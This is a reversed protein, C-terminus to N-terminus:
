PIIDRYSPELGADAIISPSAGDNNTFTNSAGTLHQQVVVDVVNVAVNDRVDIFNSGEDLYIAALPFSGLWPLRTIDYIYNEAIVTGPQRSLTYIGAGDALMKVVDHVKNYRILNNRAANDVDAWGWGVSIGSYSTNTIENHEIVTDRAYTTVIGISQYYDLGVGDIYNNRIINQSSIKRADTPNGELNLDITFGSASTNQIVNGVFSSNDVDIWLNVASGGTNRITNREFRLNRAYAVHIAAPIGENPYSTIEDEPLPGVYRFSAQDGIFGQALPLKWTTEQFTLGHFAINEVQDDIAGEVRLLQELRPASAVASTLNEGIRPKYYVRDAIPDVYFEGPSNVFARANDLFYPRNEKPPYNQGFILTREPEQPTIVNGSISAIRLTAQNGGKGPITIRVQSLQAATLSRLTAADSEDISITKEAVNWSMINFSESEPSRALTARQANVYFQLFELGGTPASYIGNGDDVWGTIRQGGSIIPKERPYARWVVSHGNTGSDRQDFVLPESLAYEGGRLYVAIDTTMGQNITRVYDRAKHLTKFPAARSGPNSDKGKPSIYISSDDDHITVTAKSRVTTFGSLPRLVMTVTENPELLTDDIPIINVYGYSRGAKITMTGTLTAFDARGATSSKAVYYQVSLASTVTGTRRVILQGMGSTSANSESADPLKAYIGISPDSLLTRPELSEFCPGV